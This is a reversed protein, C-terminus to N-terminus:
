SEAVRWFYAIRAGGSKGRGSASWRVKCIGGGGPILDGTDPCTALMEQPDRVACREPNACAVPHIDADRYLSHRIVQCELRISYAM